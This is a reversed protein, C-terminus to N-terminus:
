IRMKSSILIVDAAAFLFLAVSFVANAAFSAGLMRPLNDPRAMRHQWFLVPVLVVVGLLYLWGLGAAQGFLALLWVTILHNAAAFVLAKRAGWRAPLSLLKHARDVRVTRCAHIIDFGAAWFTVAAGLLLPPLEVQARVAIWAGIPALGLCLGLVWHTWVTLHKTYSYGLLVALVLPSLVLCLRNLMAAALFYTAAAILLLAWLWRTGAPGAVPARDATRPAKRALRLNAIRDFALAAIRAAVMAVFIWALTRGLPWGNWAVVAAALAFPLAFVTHDLRIAKLLMAAKPMM